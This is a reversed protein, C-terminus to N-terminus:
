CPKSVFVFSHFFRWISISQMFNIIFGVYVLKTFIFFGFPIFSVVRCGQFRVFFIWDYCFDLRVLFGVTVFIRLWRFSVFGQFSVADSGFMLTRDASFAFTISLLHEGRNFLFSVFLDRVPIM